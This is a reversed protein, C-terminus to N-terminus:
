SWRRSLVLAQIMEDMRRVAETLPTLAPEPIQGAPEALLQFLEEASTFTRINMAQIQSPRVHNPMALVRAGRAAMDVIAGNYSGSHTVIFTEFPDTAELYSVYPLLPIKELSSKEPSGSPFPKTRTMAERVIQAVRRDDINEAVDLVMRSCELPSGILPPWSHDVLVSGPIKETRAQFLDDYPFPILRAGTKTLSEPMFVFALDADYAIEMFSATVAGKFNHGTLFAGAEVVYDHILYADADPIDQQDTRVHLVEVHELEKFRRDLLEYFVETSLWSDALGTDRLRGVLALRYRTNTM